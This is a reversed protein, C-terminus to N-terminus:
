TSRSASPGVATERTQWSGTRTMTGWKAKEGSMWKYLGILKWLANLQRFAFNELIAAALMLGVHKPKPYVHFSIEELLFASVSLLIGLSIAMICMILWVQFSVFGLLFGMTVFVYGLIEIVPGLCEFVVMFPVSFWGVTEGRPHFLLDINWALSECLGRQWRIRQNRLTHLHEPAETWCIPDPPFTIRYPTGAKRLHRHLPVVLEMDEGIANERYGGVSVVTGKHFLGFAGSIILLANLPSWGL